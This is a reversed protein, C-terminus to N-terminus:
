HSRILRNLLRPLGALRHQVRSQQSTVDDVVAPVWWWLPRCQPLALPTWPTRFGLGIPVTTLDIQYVHVPDDAEIPTEANQHPEKKAPPRAPENVIRGWAEGGGMKGDLVATEERTSRGGYDVSVSNRDNLRGAFM